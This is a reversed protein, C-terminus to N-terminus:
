YMCGEASFFLKMNGSVLLLAMAVGIVIYRWHTQIKDNLDEGNTAPDIANDAAHVLKSWFYFLFVSKGYYCILSPTSYGIMSDVLLPASSLERRSLDVLPHHSASLFSFCHGSAFDHLTGCQSLNCRAVSVTKLSAVCVHM